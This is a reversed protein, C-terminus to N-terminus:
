KRRHQQPPRKHLPLSAGTDGQRGGYMVAAVHNDSGRNWQHQQPPDDDDDDDYMHEKRAARLDDDEDGVITHQALTFSRVSSPMAWAETPGAGRAGSARLATTRHENLGAGRRSGRNPSTHAPATHPPPAPAHAAQAVPAASAFQLARREIYRRADAAAAEDEAIVAAVSLPQPPPATQQV